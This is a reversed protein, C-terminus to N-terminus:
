ELNTQTKKFFAKNHFICCFNSFANKKCKNILIYFPDFSRSIAIKWSIFFQDWHSKQTTYWCIKKIELQKILIKILAKKWFQKMYFFAAFALFTWQDLWKRTDLLIFHRRKSECRLTSSQRKSCKIYKVSIIVKLLTDVSVKVHWPLAKGWAASLICTKLISLIKM